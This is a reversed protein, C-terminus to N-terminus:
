PSNPCQFYLPLYVFWEQATFSWAFPAGSLPKGTLDDAVSITPTYTTQHLFPNHLLTVVTGGHSWSTSWGGPDPTVNYSFTATNIAESFSIVLAADLPVLTAGDVPLTGVVVPPIDIRASDQRVGVPKADDYSVTVTDFSTVNLIGDDPLIGAVPDCQLTGTFVGPTGTELLPVDSETDGSAASSLTVSAVGTGALDQDTLTMGLTAATPYEDGDFEVVGIYGYDVLLMPKCCVGLSGLDQRYGTDWSFISDGTTAGDMRFTLRDARYGGPNFYALDSPAPTLWYATAPADADLQVTTWTPSMTAWVQANHVNTITGTDSIDTTFSILNCSWVDAQGIDLQDDQKFLVVQASTLTADAPIAGLDFQFFGNRWGAYTTNHGTWMDDDDLVIGYDREAVYGSHLPPPTLIMPTTFSYPGSCATNAAQDTSCVEHFYTAGMELGDFGIFHDTTLAADSVTYSYPLIPGWNVVSDAPEDTEWTIEVSQGNCAFAAENSIVPPLGDIRATDTFTAAPSVDNYTVTLTDPDTVHLTGDNAGAGAVPDCPFPGAFVGTAGIETLVVANETDGTSWSDLTVVVSGTGALDNDSVTMDLPGTVPYYDENFQVYGQSQILNGSVTLAYPQVNWGPTAQDTQFAVAFITYAGPDPDNIRVKQVVDPYIFGPNLISEGNAFNGAGSLYYDIGNPHDVEVYLYNVMQFASGATGPPDPYVLTVDLPQGPAVAVTYVKFFPQVISAGDLGTRNDDVLLSRHDGPFFLANDLLVRGYGQGNGPITGGTNMGTMPEASNVMTAKLLAASPVFAGAPFFGSSPAVPAYRGTIYYERVLAAAGAVTPAAMSTGQYGALGDNPASGDTLNDNEASYIYQGPACIDPKIRGWGGTPGWSSFNAVDESDHGYGDNSTEAAGISMCNKASAPPTITTVGPGDNGNSFIVLFDQNQWMMEDIDQSYSSYEGYDGGGWSNSHIFAGDALAQPFLGVSGPYGAFPPNVDNLDPPPYLYPSDPRSLDQFVLKAAYANGEYWEYAVTATVWPFSPLATGTVLWEGAVTGAVHSGHGRNIDWDYTQSLPNTATPYFGDGPDYYPPTDTLVGTQYWNHYALVKRQAPDFNRDPLGNVADWFMLHDADIGTDSVGVIEGAGTLGNAFVKRDGLQNTQVIWTGNDNEATVLYRREIWYVGNMAAIQPLQARDIGVHIRGGGAYHVIGGLAQIQAAHQSADELPFLTVVFENEPQPTSGSSLAEGDYLLATSSVGTGPSRDVAPSIKYSPEWLGIWDIQELANLAQMHSSSLRCLYSNHPVYYAINEPSIARRLESATESSPRAAFHVVYYGGEVPLRLTGLLNDPNNRNLVIGAGLHM